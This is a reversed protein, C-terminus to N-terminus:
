GTCRRWRTLVAHSGLDRVHLEIFVQDGFPAYPEGRVWSVLLTVVGAAMPLLVLALPLALPHRVPTLRDWLREGGEVRRFRRARGTGAPDAVVAM